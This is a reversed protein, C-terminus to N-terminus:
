NAGDNSSMRREAGGASRWRTSSLKSPSASPMEVSATSSAMMRASGSPAHGGGHAEVLAEQALELHQVHHGLPREEALQAGLAAAAAHAAADLEGVGAVVRGAVIQAGDVPVEVAAHLPQEHAEVLLVLVQRDVHQEVGARRHAQARRGLE